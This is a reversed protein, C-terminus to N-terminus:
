AASVVVVVAAGAVGETVGTVPLLVIPCGPAAGAADDAIDAFVCM